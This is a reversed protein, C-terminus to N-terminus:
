APWADTSCSSRRCSIDGRVSAVLANSACCTSSGRSPANTAAKAAEAAGTSPPTAIVAVQRRVLDGALEPLRYYQDQAWRYEIMVNQGEVYGAEKLGDRFAPVLQARAEPSGLHLFGVVPMLPQQARAAFPRVAASGLVIIVTRRKV